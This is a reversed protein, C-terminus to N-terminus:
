VWHVETELWTFAVLQLNLFRGKDWPPAQWLFLPPFDSQGETALHHDQKIDQCDMNSVKLWPRWMFKWYSRKHTSLLKLKTIPLLNNQVKIIIMVEPFSLNELISAPATVTNLNLRKTQNSRKKLICLIKFCQAKELFSNNNMYSGNLAKYQSSCTALKHILYIRWERFSANWPSLHLRQCWLRPQAFAARRRWSQGGKMRPWRPVEADRAHTHTCM